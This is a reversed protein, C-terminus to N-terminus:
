RWPKNTLGHGYKNESLVCSKSCMCEDEVVHKLLKQGDDDPLAATLQHKYASILPRRSYHSSIM